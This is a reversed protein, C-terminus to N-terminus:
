WWWGHLPFPPTEAQAQKHHHKHKKPHPKPLPSAVVPAVVPAVVRAHAVPKTHVAPPTPQTVAETVEPTVVEAQTVQVPAKHHRKGPWFMVLCAVAFLLVVGSVINLMTNHNTM